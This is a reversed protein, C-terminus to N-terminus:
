IMMNLFEIYDLVGDNNFDNETILSKATQTDCRALKKLEKESIKGDKDSDFAKFANRLKEDNLYLSQDMAAAIFETYGVVGKGQMDLSKFVEEPDVKKNHSLKKLLCKIDEYYLVGSKDKSCSFFTESLLKVENDSLRSAIFLLVAKKLKNLNKYNLLNELSLSLYSENEKSYSDTMWKHNLVDKASFRIEADCLM